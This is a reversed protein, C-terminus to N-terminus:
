LQIWQNNKLYLMALQYWQYVGLCQSYLMPHLIQPYSLGNSEVGVSTHVQYNHM